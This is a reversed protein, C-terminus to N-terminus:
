NLITYSISEGELTASEVHKFISSKRWIFYQDHMLLEDKFILERNLDAKSTLNNIHIGLSFDTYKSQKFNSIHRHNNM